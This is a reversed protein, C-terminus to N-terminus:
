AAGSLPPSPSAPAPPRTLLYRLYAHTGRRFSEYMPSGRVGALASTPKRFPKPVREALAVRRDSDIDLAQLVNPTIDERDVVRWGAAAFAADVPAFDRRLDAFLLHGGPRLVRFAEAAFREFRPYCHSSEVNLVADFSGDPFPLREADAPAFELGPVGAHLRRCLRVASPAIDVGVMRAPRLYRAVYSAGGGRGCGVELVEKRELPVAGAVRHYLQLCVWEPQDAPQLPIREAGVYGYNMCRFADGQARAMLDYATRWFLKKTGGLRTLWFLPSRLLNM